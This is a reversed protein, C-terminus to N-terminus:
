DALQDLGEDPQRNSLQKNDEPHIASLGMAVRDRMLRIKELSGAKLKTPCEPVISEGFGHTRGPLLDLLVAEMTDLDIREDYLENELRDLKRSMASCPQEDTLRCCQKRKPTELCLEYPKNSTQNGAPM